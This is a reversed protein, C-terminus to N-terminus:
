SEASEIGVAQLAEEFTPYMVMGVARGDRLTWVQGFHQDIEIGSGRGRGTHHIWVVVKDGAAAVKEIEVHDFEWGEGWQEAFNRLGPLGRYVAGDPMEMGSMDWVVEPDILDGNEEFSKDNYVELLRYVLEVNEESVAM